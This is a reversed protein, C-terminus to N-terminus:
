EAARMRYEAARDGEAIRERMRAEAEARLKEAAEEAAAVIAAVREAAAAAGATTEARATGAAEAAIDRADSADAESTGVESAEGAHAQSADAEPDAEPEAGSDAIDSEESVLQHYPRECGDLALNGDTRLVDAGGLALLRRPM